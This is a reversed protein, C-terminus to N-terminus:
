AASDLHVQLDLGHYALDVITGKLTNDGERLDLRLREPRIAATM